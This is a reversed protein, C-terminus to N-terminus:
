ITPGHGEGGDGSGGEGKTPPIPYLKSVDVDFGDTLSEDRKDFRLDRIGHPVSGAKNEPESLATQQYGHKKLVEILDKEMEADPGTPPNTYFVRLTTTIM